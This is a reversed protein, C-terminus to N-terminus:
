FLLIFNGFTSIDKKRYNIMKGYVKKKKEKMLIIFYEMEKKKIMRGIVKMNIVMIIIIYEKGRKLIMKGIVKM